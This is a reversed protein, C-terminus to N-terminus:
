IFGDPKVLVEAGAYGPRSARFEHLRPWTSFEAIDFAESQKLASHFAAKVDMVELEHRLTLDSVTARKEFLVPSLKPVASLLQQTELIAHGKRTLFLVSKENVRRKREGILGAAKVKQLRKKTAEKKGDFYLAAIHAGTMVRSEFLGCLIAFDRRQLALSDSKKTTQSM